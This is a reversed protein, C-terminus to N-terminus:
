HCPYRLVPCCLWTTVVLADLVIKLLDRTRNGLPPTRSHFLSQIFCLRFIPGLSDFDARDTGRRSRERTAARGGVSVPGRTLMLVSKLWIRLRTVHMTFSCLLRRPAHAVDGNLARRRSLRLQRAPNRPRRRRCAWKFCSNRPCFVASSDMM